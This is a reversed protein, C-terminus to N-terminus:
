IPENLACMPLQYPKKPQEIIEDRQRTTTSVVVEEEGGDGGGSRYQCCYRLKPSLNPQSCCGNTSHLPPLHSEKGDDNGLLAEEREIESGVHLLV